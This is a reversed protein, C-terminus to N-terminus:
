EICDTLEGHRCGSLQGWSHDALRLGTTLTKLPSSLGLLQHERDGGRVRCSLPSLLDLKHPPRPAWAAAATNFALEGSVRGRRGIGLRGPSPLLAPPVAAAGQPAPWGVPARLVESLASVVSLAGFSQGPFLSCEPLLRWNHSCCPWPLQNGAWSIWLKTDAM